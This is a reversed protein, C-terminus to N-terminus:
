SPTTLLLSYRMNGMRTGILMSLTPFPLNSQGIKKREGTLLFRFFMDSAANSTSFLGMKIACTLVLSQNKRSNYLASAPKPNLNKIKRLFVKVETARDPVRYVEMEEAQPRVVGARIPSFFESSAKTMQKAMEAAFLM